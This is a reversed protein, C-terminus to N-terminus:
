GTTGRRAAESVADAWSRFYRRAYHVLSTDGGEPKPRSLSALDIPLGAGLRARLATLIDNKGSFRHRPDPSRVANEDIGAAKLVEKWTSYWSKLDDHLRRGRADGTQVARAAIPQGKRHRQRLEKLAAARTFHPLRTGEVPLRGAELAAHLSGFYRKAAGILTSDGAPGKHLAIGSVPLGEAHRRRLEALVDEARWFRRSVVPEEAQLVGAAAVAERWGGFLQFARRGLNLNGGHEKKVILSKQLMPLGAAARARIAELVSKQDPYLREHKPLHKEWAPAPVPLGAAALAKQWSGFYKAAWRGLARDGAQAEAEKRHLLPLTRHLDVLKALVAERTYAREAVRAPMIPLSSAQLIASWKGFRRLGERLLAPNKARLAAPRLLFGNEALAEIEALLIAAERPPIRKPPKPPKPVKPVKPAKPLKPPKPPKPAKPLKPVKPPLAPPTGAGSFSRAPRGGGALAWGEPQATPLAAAPAPPDLPAAASEKVLVPPAADRPASGGSALAIEPGLTIGHAPPKVKQHKTQHRQHRSKRKM